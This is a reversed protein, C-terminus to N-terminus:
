KVISTTLARKHGVVSYCTRVFFLERPDPNTMTSEIGSRGRLSGDRDKLVVCAPMVFDSEAV